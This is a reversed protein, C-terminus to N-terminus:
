RKGCNGLNRGRIASTGKSAPDFGGLTMARGKVRNESPIQTNNGRTLLL